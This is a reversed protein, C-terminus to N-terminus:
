LLTRHSYVDSDYNNSPLKQSLYVVHLLRKYFVSRFLVYRQTMYSNSVHMPTATVHFVLRRTRRIRRRRRRRGSWFWLIGSIKFKPSIIIYQTQKQHHSNYCVIIYLSIDYRFVEHLYYSEHPYWYKDYNLSKFIIDYLAMDCIKDSTNNPIRHCIDHDLPIKSPRNVKENARDRYM